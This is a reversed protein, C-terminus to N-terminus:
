QNIHYSFGKKDSETPEVTGIIGDEVKLRSYESAELIVHIPLSSKTDTNNIQIDKLYQFQNVMVEYQPNKINILIDKEM